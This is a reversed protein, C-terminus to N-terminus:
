NENTDEESELWKLIGDVTCSPANFLSCREDCDRDSRACAVKVINALFLALDEKNMAKIKDFNTKM